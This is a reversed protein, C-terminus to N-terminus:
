NLEVISLKTSTGYVEHVVYILSTKLGLRHLFRKSRLTIFHYSAASFQMILLKM